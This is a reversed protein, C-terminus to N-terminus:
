SRSAGARPIKAKGGQRLNAYADNVLQLATTLARDHRAEIAYEIARTPVYNRAVSSTYFLGDELRFVNAVRGLVKIAVLDGDKKL